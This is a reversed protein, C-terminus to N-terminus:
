LMIRDIIREIEEMEEQKDLGEENRIPEELYNLNINAWLGEDEFLGQRKGQIFLL